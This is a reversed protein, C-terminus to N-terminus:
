NEIALYVDSVDTCEQLIEGITKNIKPVIWKSAIENAPVLVFRREQMRPHPIQLEFTDIILNDYLIIDVDIEREHWKPRKRRGITREISKCADLLKEPSLMTEGTIAINIFFPQDSYGVPETEYFSSIKINDLIKKSKLFNVAKKINDIRSGLNSGLSLLVKAPGM